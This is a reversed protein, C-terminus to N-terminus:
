RAIARPGISAVARVIGDDNKRGIMTGESDRRFAFGQTPGLGVEVLSADPDGQDNAQGSRRLLVAPQVEGRLIGVQEGGQCGLFVDQQGDDNIAFIGAMIFVTELLDQLQDTQVFATVM